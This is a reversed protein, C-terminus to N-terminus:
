EKVTIVSVSRPPLEVSVSGKGSGVELAAPRVQDPKEFTNHADIANGTLVTGSASAAVMGELSLTVDVARDAHLNVIGILLDGNVARAATASVNPVSVDGLRYEAIKVHEVPVFTSDQFPVYM